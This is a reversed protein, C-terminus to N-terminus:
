NDNNQSTGTGDWDTKGHLVVNRIFQMINSATVTFPEQTHEKLIAFLQQFDDRKAFDEIYTRNNQEENINHKLYPVTEALGELHSRLLKLNDSDEDAPSETEKESVSDDESKTVVPATQLRSIFEQYTEKYEYDKPDRDRWAEFEKVVKLDNKLDDLLTAPIDRTDIKYIWQIYKRAVAKEADTDDDLRINYGTKGKALPKVKSWDTANHEIVADAIKEPTMDSGKYRSLYWELMVEHFKVKSKKEKLVRAVETQLYVPKCTIMLQKRIHLLNRKWVTVFEKSKEVDKATMPVLPIFGDACVLLKDIYEVAKSQIPLVIGGSKKMSRYVDTCRLNGLRQLTKMTYEHVIEACPIRVSKKKNTYDENM